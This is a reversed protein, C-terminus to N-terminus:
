QIDRATPFKLALKSFTSLNWSIAMIIPAELFPFLFSIFLMARFLILKFIFKIIYLPIFSSLSGHLAVTELNTIWSFYLPRLEWFVLFLVSAEPVGFLSWTSIFVVLNYGSNHNPAYSKRTNMKNMAKQSLICSIWDRWRSSFTQTLVCVEFHTHKFLPKLLEKFVRYSFTHLQNFPEYNNKTKKKEVRSFVLVETIEVPSQREM